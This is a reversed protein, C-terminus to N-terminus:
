VFVSTKCSLQAFFLCRLYVTGFCKVFNGFPQLPKTCSVIVRNIFLFM